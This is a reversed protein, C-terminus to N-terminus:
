SVVTERYRIGGQHPCLDQQNNKVSKFKIKHPISQYIQTHSFPPSPINQLLQSPITARPHNHSSHLNPVFAFTIPTFQSLLRDQISSACSRHKPKKSNCPVFLHRQTM